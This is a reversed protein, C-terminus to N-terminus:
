SDKKLKRNTKENIRLEELLEIFLQKVKIGKETLQPVRIRGKKKDHIILNSDSAHLINIINIVHSTTLNTKSAIESKYKVGNIEVFIRAPAHLLFVKYMDTRKYMSTKAM